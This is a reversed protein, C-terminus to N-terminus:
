VGHSVTELSGLPCSWLQEMKSGLERIKLQQKCREQSLSWSPSVRKFARRKVMQEHGKLDPGPESASGLSSEAM